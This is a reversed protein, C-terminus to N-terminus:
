GASPELTATAEPAKVTAEPTKAKSEPAKAEAELTTVKSTAEPAKTTEATAEATKATAEPAKVTAALPKSSGEIAKRQGSPIHLRQYQKSRPGLADRVVRKWSLFSQYAPEFAEARLGRAKSLAKNSAIEDRLEKAAATGMIGFEGTLLEDAWAENSHEGLVGFITEIANLKDTDTELSKLTNPLVTEPAFALIVSRTVKYVPDLAEFAVGSDRKDKGLTTEATAIASHNKCFADAPTKVVGKYVTVVSANMGPEAAIEAARTLLRFMLEYKLVTM